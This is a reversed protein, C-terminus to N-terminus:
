NQDDFNEMLIELYPYLMFPIVLGYVKNIYVGTYKKTIYSDCMGYLTWITEVDAM